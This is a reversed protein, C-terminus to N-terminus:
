KNAATSEQKKLHDEIYVASTCYGDGEEGMAGFNSTPELKDRQIQEVVLNSLIDKEYDYEFSKVVSCKDNKCAVAYYCDNKQDRINVYGRNSFKLYRANVWGAHFNEYFQQPIQYVICWTAHKIKQCKDIAIFAKNPLSGVKKSKYNAKSRINLIDNQPVDIITAFLAPKCTGHAWLDLVMIMCVWLIKHM